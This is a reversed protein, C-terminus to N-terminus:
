LAGMDVLVDLVAEKDADSVGRDFDPFDGPTWQRFRARHNKALPPYVGFADNHDWLLTPWMWIEGYEDMIGRMAPIM